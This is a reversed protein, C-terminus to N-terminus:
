VGSYNSIQFLLRDKLSYVGDMRRDMRGNIKRISILIVAPCFCKRAKTSHAASFVRSLYSTWSTMVSFVICAKNDKSSKQYKTDKKSPIFNHRWTFSLCICQSTLWRNSNKYNSQAKITDPIGKGKGKGYLVILLAAAKLAAAYVSM